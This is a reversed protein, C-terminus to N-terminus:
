ATKRNAPRLLRRFAKYTLSETTDGPKEHIVFETADLFKFCLRVGEADSDFPGIVVEYIEKLSQAAYVATRAARMYRARDSEERESSTAYVNTPVRRDVIVLGPLLCGKMDNIIFLIPDAIENQALCSDYHLRLITDIRPVGPWYAGNLIFPLECAPCVFTGVNYGQHDERHFSVEVVQRTGVM